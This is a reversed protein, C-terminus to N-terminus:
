KVLGALEALDDANSILIGSEAAFRLAGPTFGAQSICWALAQLSIAIARLQELESRGGQKQRWKVEVAWREGNEALADINQRLTRLATRSLALSFRCRSQPRRAWTLTSCQGDPWSACCSECKARKPAAM